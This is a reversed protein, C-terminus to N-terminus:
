RYGAAQLEFLQSYRGGRSMLDEHTGDEEIFGDSLVLIRDAMRVTSFRHSILIASRGQALDAFRQFLLREARADLSATPEDLVLVQADRMYARALAFKQWEGGSLDVGGAFRRGLMQDYGDPFQDILTKALSKRAAAQIRFDDGISDLKGFGINERASMNYRVYDQFIVGIQSQLDQIDYDRLDVGDLLIRGETPDYLRTLLKVLTTKGAGNDGVLAITEDPRLCFSIKNLVPENRGPYSFTVKEFQFGRTMPRPALISTSRTHINPKLQLFDFLDKLVLAQTTASNLSSLISEVSGRCRAFAGTLFAFSGITITGAIMRLVVLVYTGYFACTSILRLVSGIVTRRIGISEEEALLSSSIERYRETLHDALGFIRVEKMSQVNTILQRIYELLRREPTRTYQLRHMLRSFRREGLFAPTVALVLLLVVWPSFLLLTGLLASLTLVEQCTDLVASQLGLRNNSLRRARELRDHFNSDEFHALDLKAAHIVLQLSIHESLRDGLLNELLSGARGLLDGAVSLAFQFAVLKWILVAVGARHAALAVMADLTLKAIWLRILPIPSRLLCLVVTGLELLPSTEWVMTFLSRINQLATLRDQWSTDEQASRPEHSETERGAMTCIM